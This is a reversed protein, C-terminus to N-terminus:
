NLHYEGFMYFEMLVGEMKDLWDTRYTVDEILKRDEIIIFGLNGLVEVEVEVM